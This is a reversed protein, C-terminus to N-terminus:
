LRWPSRMTRGLLRNATPDNEFRHEIPDWQLSQNLRYAINGFHCVTVSSAGIEIDCIPRKRNKMCDIWDRHHGPSANLPTDSSKLSASIVSDPWSRLYGRNVEIKGEEGTFLIGNVKAAEKTPGHYLVVGNAYRYTLTEFEKGDPPHIEVPTQGDMGLGWQAIDFHHAGWDTMDGGSYDRYSRWQPYTDNHPPRLIANFPAEPAPGLWMQWDLGEPLPEAPLQCPKSPPGVNAHVTKIRGIYGNRVLECAKRFNQSSRQQSGTQFVREHKRVAQVMLQAEEVTLSLPKECYIDKGARAAEIVQIGHWHDPTAILVADIDQRALLDRFDNYGACGSFAGETRQGGYANHTTEVAIKRFKRHVESIATIQVDDVALLSHLHHNGQKGYGILGITIRNSPAVSGAKGLASAPIVWPAAVAAAAGRRLFARRTTRHSPKM